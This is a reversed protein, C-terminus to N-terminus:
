MEWQFDQKAFVYLFIRWFIERHLKEKTHELNINISTGKNESVKGAKIRLQKIGVPQKFFILLQKTTSVKIFNRTNNVYCAFFAAVGFTEPSLSSQFIDTM